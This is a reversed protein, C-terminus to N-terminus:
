LQRDYIDIYIFVHKNVEILEHTKLIFKGYDEYGPSKKKLIGKKSTQFIQKMSSFDFNM